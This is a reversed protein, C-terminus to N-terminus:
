LRATETFVRTRSDAVMANATRAYNKLGVPIMDVPAQNNKKLLPFDMALPGAVEILRISDVTRTFGHLQRATTRLTDWDVPAKEHLRYIMGRGHSNDINVLMLRAPPIKSYDFLASNVVSKVAMQLEGFRRNLQEMETVFYAGHGK